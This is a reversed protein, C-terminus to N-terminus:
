KKSAELHASGRSTSKWYSLALRISRAAEDERLPSVLVDYGGRAVTERWLYDDVVASTLIVCPHPVASALIRVADQWEMGSLDRECVVVPSHLRNAVNWADGCTNAFHIELHDRAGIDKLLDRDREATVLAVVPTGQPSKRNVAIKKASGAFFTRIAKWFPSM